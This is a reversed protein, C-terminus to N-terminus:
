MIEIVCLCLIYLCKVATSCPWLVANAVDNLCTVYLCAYVSHQITPIHCFMCFLQCNVFELLFCFAKSNQNRPM